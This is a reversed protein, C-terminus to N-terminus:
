TSAYFCILDINNASLIQFVSGMLMNYKTVLCALYITLTTREYGFSLYGQLICSVDTIQKTIYIYIYIYIYRKFIEYANALGAEYKM